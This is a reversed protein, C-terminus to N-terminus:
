FRYSAQIKVNRGPDNMSSLHPRYTKDTLNDIGFDVRMRDRDAGPRLTLFIDTLTYSDATDADDPVRDQSWAHTVRGGLTLRGQMVHVGGELALNDAPIGSLPGGETRNDGRQRAASVTIFHDPHTYHIELEQGRLRADNVNEFYTRGGPIPPGFAPMELEVIQDIFDEVDNQYVSLRARLRDEPHFLGRAHHTLGLEKNRAKEPRLDPNPEFRNNGFHIGGVYLNTLSPARFAESYGAFLEWGPTLTYTASIQGSWESETLRDHDDADKSFHDYRLGPAIELRDTILLRDVLFIGTVAQRADPYMPRSEGDREGKQRDQYHELGVVVLHDVPGTEFRLTNTLDLGLTNLQTVDNRGTDTRTEDLEVQNGYLTADLDLWRSDDPHLQYRLTQTRNDTRRDVIIATSGAGTGTSNANSPIEHDDRFAQLSLTLRHGPAPTLTGKLLGSVIEDGTYLITDGNGDKLDSQERKLVNALLSLREGRGAATASFLSQDGQSQYGASVRGGADVDPGLFSDADQTRFNVVGGLAGSGYLTSAPGRLVEVQELLLPDLFIRGKHGAGFNQRANDVRIVVREGSLGRIVPEMAIARTGGGIGVGPLMRMIDALNAAQDRDMSERDRVAVPANVQEVPAPMRTSEILLTPLTVSAYLPDGAPDAGHATGSLAAAIAATLMCLRQRTM